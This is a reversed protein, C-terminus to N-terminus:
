GDSRDEILGCMALLERAEDADAAHGCIVIAAARAEADTPPQVARIGTLRQSLSEPNATDLSLWPSGNERM